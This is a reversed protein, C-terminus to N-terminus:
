NGCILGPEQVTCLGYMETASTVCCSTGAPCAGSGVACTGTCSVGGQCAQTSSFAQPCCINGGTCDADSSCSTGSCATGAAACYSTQTAQVTCCTGGSPCPNAPGCNSPCSGTSMCMDFGLASELSTCCTYDSPPLCLNSSNCGADLYLNCSAGLLCINGLKGDFCCTTGYPGGCDANSTCPTGPGDKAACSGLGGGLNGSCGVAASSQDDSLKVKGGDPCSITTSGGSTMLTFVSSGIVFNTAGGFTSVTGCFGGDAGFYQIQASNGTDNAGVQIVQKSGNAYTDTFTGGDPSGDFSCSGSGNFCTFLSALPSACSDLFLDVFGADGGGDSGGDSGRDAGADTPWYPCSAGGDRIQIIQGGDGVCGINGLDLCQGNFEMVDCSLVQQGNNTGLTPAVVTVTADIGRGKITINWATASVSPPCRATDSAGGDTGGGPPLAVCFSATGEASTAYSDDNAEVTLLAGVIPQGSCGMLEGQLCVIPTPGTESCDINWFSLHPLKASYVGGSLTATGEYQWLATTLNFSWLNSSSPLAGVIAGPIAVAVTKGSAIQLNQGNQTVTVDLVGHTEMLVQTGAADIGQLNGPYAGIEGPEGPTLPTLSVQVTGTVPTGSATVFVGPGATLSSGRAGTITGGATANLPQPAAQAMLHVDLEASQGATTAVSYASSLFGTDSFSVITTPGAAVSFSYTGNSATTTSATGSTVAVGAVPKGGLGVVTGGVTASTSGGVPSVSTTCAVFVIALVALHRHVM